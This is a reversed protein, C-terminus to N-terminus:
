LGLIFLIFLALILRYYAFPTLTHTGLYRIFWRMVFVASIFSTVLGILLISVHSSNTLIEPHRLLDFGSAALITPLSLLFTYRASEDRRFGLLMMILIVSGSRSVGPIVSVAQALGILLSEQYTLNSLGRNLVVRGKKVLYEVFFFLLGVFVFVYWSFMASNFLTNKIFSYLVFGITATPLFSLAVQFTLKPNQFFTRLYLVLLALIAGGQIIVEFSSLFDSPALSLLRSVTLLHYTSSIPLFETLGEVLGLIISHLITM